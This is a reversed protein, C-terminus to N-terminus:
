LDIIVSENDITDYIFKGKLEDQLGYVSELKNTTKMNLTLHWCYLICFLTKVRKLSAKCNGFNSNLSWYVGFQFM